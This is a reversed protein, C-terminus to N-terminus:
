VVKSLWSLLSQKAEETFMNEIFSDVADGSPEHRQAPLRIVYTDANEPDSMTILGVGFRRSAEAVEACKKDSDNWEPCHWILHGYHVHSTHNLAEHVSTADCRGRPKVEFGHLEFQYTASYRQRWLAAICLDPKSWKGTGSGGSTATIATVSRLSGHLPRLRDRFRLDIYDRVPEYLDKELM